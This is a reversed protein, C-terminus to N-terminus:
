QHGSLIDGSLIDRVFHRPCFTIHVFHWQVFHWPCFTASLIYHVFHRPCFTVSLFDHVIHRPCFPMTLIDHDFHEPWNQPCVGTFLNQTAFSISPCSQVRSHSAPIVYICHWFVRGLYLPISCHKPPATLAYSHITVVNLWTLGQKWASMLLVFSLRDFLSPWVTGADVVVTTTCHVHTYRYMRWFCITLRMHCIVICSSISVEEEFGEWLVREPKSGEYRVVHQDCGYSTPQLALEHRHHSIQSRHSDISLIKFDPFNPVSSNWM